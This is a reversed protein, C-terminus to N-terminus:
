PYTSFTISSVQWNTLAHESYVDQYDTRRFTKSVDAVSLTIVCDGPVASARMCADTNSAELRDYFYNLEDALSTDSSVEISQNGKYDKITQLGQWMRHADSGTYYSEIKTRYKCISAKGTPHNM